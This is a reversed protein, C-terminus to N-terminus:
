KDIVASGISIIYILQSPRCLVKHIIVRKAKYMTLELAKEKIRKLAENVSESERAGGPEKVKICYLGALSM